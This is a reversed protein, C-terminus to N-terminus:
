FSSDARGHKVRRGGTSQLSKIFLLPALKYCSPNASEAGRKVLTDAIDNGVIGSHGKIWQITCRKVVDLSGSAFDIAGSTPRAVIGLLGKGVGKFFGEIGEEQAGEIPKTIVGTIGEFVGMVLGKSSQALGQGIDAPRKNMRERRKRQYEKDMTLAALGKGLTGTIRSVSGAAGGVAHGFLSRIGLALGEAFEEPGQILGQFPEYFLDGVGTTLGMILGMPNGIVDLGFILMYVQKVAYDYNAAQEQGFFDLIHNVLAMALKIQFEQILIKFYKFQLMSSQQAKRLMISVETFPKPEPYQQDQRPAAHPTPIEEAEALAGPQFKAEPEENLTQHYLREHFRGAHRLEKPQLHVWTATVSEEKCQIPTLGSNEKNNAFTLWVTAEKASPAEIKKEAIWDKELYQPINSLDTLVDLARKTITFELANRSKLEISFSPTQQVNIEENEELFDALFNKVLLLSCVVVNSALIVNQPFNGSANRNNNNNDHGFFLRLHRWADEDCIFIVDCQLPPSTWGCRGATGGPGKSYEVLNQNTELTVLTAIAGM